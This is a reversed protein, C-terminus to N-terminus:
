LLLHRNRPPPTATHNTTMSTPQIAALWCNWAHYGGSALWAGCCPCVTTGYPILWPSRRPNPVDSM